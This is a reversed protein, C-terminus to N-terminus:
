TRKKPQQFGQVASLQTPQPEADQDESTGERGDKDGKRPSHLATQSTVLAFQDWPAAKLAQSVSHNTILRSFRCMVCCNSVEQFPLCGALCPRLWTCINSSGNFICVQRGPLGSGRAPINTGSCCVPIISADMPMPETNHLPHFSLSSSLRTQTCVHGDDWNCGAPFLQLTHPVPISSLPTLLTPCVPVQQM